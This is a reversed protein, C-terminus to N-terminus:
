WHPAVIRWCVGSCIMSSRSASARRARLQHDHGGQHAAALPLVLVHQGRHALRAEHAHADVAFHEVDVLDALQRRALIVRDFRDDIADHDALPDLRPQGLRRPQRERVAFPRHQDAVELRRGVARRSRAALLRPVLLEVARQVGARVALDAELLELRAREAEVTGVAGARRALAPRARATRDPAPRARRCGTAPRRARDGGPLARRGGLRAAVLRLQAVEEFDAPKSQFVGSASSLGRLQALLQKCPSPLANRPTSVSSSCSYTVVSSAARARLPQFGQAAAHGALVAASRPQPGFGAGAAEVAPRNM